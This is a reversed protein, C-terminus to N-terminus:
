DKFIEDIKKDREVATWWDSYKIYEELSFAYEVDLVPDKIVIYGENNIYDLSIEELSIHEVESKHYGCIEMVEKLLSIHIDEKKEIKRSM